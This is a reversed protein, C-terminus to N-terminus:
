CAIFRQNILNGIQLREKSNLVKSKSNEIM